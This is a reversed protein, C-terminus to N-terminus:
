ARSKRNKTSKSNSKATGNDEGINLTKSVECLGLAIAQVEREDLDAQHNIHISHLIEHALVESMLQNTLGARVLITSDNHLYVGDLEEGSYEKFEEALTKQVNEVVYMEVLKGCITYTGILKM